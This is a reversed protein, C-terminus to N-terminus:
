KYAKEAWEIAEAFHGLRYQSMAKCAQFYPLASEGSGRAVAMDALKDVLELDVGSHPLLLCDQAVREDIYPNM